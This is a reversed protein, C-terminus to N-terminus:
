VDLVRLVQELERRLVGLEKSKFASKTRQLTTVAVALAAKAVKLREDRTAADDDPSDAAATGTSDDGGGAARPADDGAADAEVGAAALATVVERLGRDISHLAVTAFAETGDRVAGAGTGSGRAAADVDALREECSALEQRLNSISRFLNTRATACRIHDLLATMAVPKVLYALVPLEIAKAASEFTPRSTVLIIPLRAYRRAVKDVFALDANGPMDVDAVVVDYERGSSLCALAADANPVADVTFGARSLFAETAQLFLAEGDALLVRAHPQSPRGDNPPIPLIHM